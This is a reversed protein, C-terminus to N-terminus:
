TDIMINSNQTINDESVRYQQLTLYNLAMHPRSVNYHERWAQIKTRADEISLFWNTNLCEDRFSGNFSEILANDTPKGPRSFNLTVGNEYAWKDLTKSIFEPGNDCFITEPLGRDTAIGELVDVVKEGRIGKDVEIALCERTYNDLVTLARLRRGNFLADSVFVM